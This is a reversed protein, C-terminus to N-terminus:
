TGPISPRSADKQSAYYRAGFYDLGTDADREKGAFQRTIATSPPNGCLSQSCLEGFPLYDYRAVGVRGPGMLLAHRALHGRLQHAVRIDIRRQVHVGLHEVARNSFRDLPDPSFQVHNFAALGDSSGCSRSNSLFSHHARCSEGM